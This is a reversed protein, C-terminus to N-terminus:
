DVCHTADLTHVARHIHWSQWQRMQSTLHGVARGPVVVLYLDRRTHDIVIGRRGLICTHAFHVQAGLFM